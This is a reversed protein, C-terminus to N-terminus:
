FDSKSFRKHLNQGNRVYATQGYFLHSTEAMAYHCSAKGRFVDPYQIVRLRAEHYM